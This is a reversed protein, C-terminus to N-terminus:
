LTLCSQFNSPLNMVPELILGGEERMRLYAFLDKFTPLEGTHQYHRVRRLEDLIHDERPKEETGQNGKVVELWPVFAPAKTYVEMWYGKQAMEQVMGLMARLLQHPQAIIVASRWGEQISLSLFATNEERTHRAEMEPVLIKGRPIKFDETLIRICETKGPNALFKEDSGYKEGENNTVAIFRIGRRRHMAKALEYLGTYDKYSRNHLFLADVPHPPQGSSLMLNAITVQRYFAADFKEKTM